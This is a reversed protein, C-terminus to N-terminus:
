DTEGQGLLWSWDRPDEDDESEYGVRAKTEPPTLPTPAGPPVYERCDCYAGACAYRKGTIPDRYHSSEDHACTLQKGNRRDCPRRLSM